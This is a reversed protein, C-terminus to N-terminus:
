IQVARVGTGHSAPKSRQSPDGGPNWHGILQREKVEAKIQGSAKRRIRKRKTALSVV